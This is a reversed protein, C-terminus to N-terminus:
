FSVTATVTASYSGSTPQGQAGIQGYVPVVQMAGNGVGTLANVGATNGWIQSRSADKYLQFKVTDGTTSELLRGDVTSGAVNGADLGISYPAANSCTVNLAASQNIANSFVGQAGFSLVSSTISCDAQLTLAVHFQSTQVTAAGVSRVILLLSLNAIVAKFNM